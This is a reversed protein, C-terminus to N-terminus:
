YSNSFAAIIRYNFVFSASPSYKKLRYIRQDQRGCSFIATFLIFSTFVRNLLIADANFEQGIVSLSVNLSTTMFASIRRSIRCYSIVKRVQRKGHDM